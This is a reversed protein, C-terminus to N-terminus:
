VDAVTLGSERRGVASAMRDRHADAAQVVRQLSAAEVPDGGPGGRWTVADLVGLLMTAIVGARAAANAPAAVAETILDVLEPSLSVTRDDLQVGTM